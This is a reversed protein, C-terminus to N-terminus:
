KTQLSVICQAIGAREAASIQPWAVMATGKVGTAITKAIDAATSGQKYTAPKTLNRAKMAKGSPTSGTGDEGHCTICTKEKFLSKGRAVDAGATMAAGTADAQATTLAGRNSCASPGMLLAAGVLAVPAALAM